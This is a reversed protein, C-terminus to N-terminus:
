KENKRRQLIGIDALIHAVKTLFEENASWGIRGGDMRGPLALGYRSDPLLVFYGVPFLPEDKHSRASLREKPIQKWRQPCRSPDEIIGMYGDGAVDGNLLCLGSLLADNLVLSAWLSGASHIIATIGLVKTSVAIIQALDGIIETRLEDFTLQTGGNRIGDPLWPEVGGAKGPNARQIEAICERIQDSYAPQLIEAAQHGSAVIVEIAGILEVLPYQKGLHAEFAELGGQCAVAYDNASLFKHWGSGDQVHFFSVIVPMEKSGYGPKTM